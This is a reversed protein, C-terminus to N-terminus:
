GRKRSFNFSYLPTPSIRRTGRLSSVHKRDERTGRGKTRGEHNERRTESSPNKRFAKLANKIDKKIEVIDSAITELKVIVTTLETTNCKTDKGFARILSLGSIILACLAIIEGVGM